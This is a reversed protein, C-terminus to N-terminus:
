RGPIEGRSGQQCKVPIAGGLGISFKDMAQELGLRQYVNDGEVKTMNTHIPLQRQDGTLQFSQPKRSLDLLARATGRVGYETRLVGHYSDMKSLVFGVHIIYM